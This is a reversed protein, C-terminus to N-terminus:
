NITETLVASTSSLYDANGNYVARIRHIGSVTFRCIVNAMGGGLNAAGLLTAGDWFVVMGTPVGAGPTVPLVTVTLTLPTGLAATTSSLTLQTRTSAQKATITLAASTTGVFSGDGGYVVTLSNLGVVLATTQISAQGNSLTASGLLTLGDYFSVTGTPMGAGPASANVTATLTVSQGYTPTSLSSSIVATTPARSVNVASSASTSGVFGGGGNYTATISHNGVALLSTTFSASNGSLSVTQLVTSGDMFTVSGAPTATSPAVVTVTATFSVAQGFVPKTATATLATTASAQTITLSVSSPSASPVFNGAPDSFSATFTQTGIGLTAVTLTAIGGAGVPATGLPTSGAYFTVTGTPFLSTQTNSVTATLVVPQGFVATTSTLNVTSTMTAAPRVMVPLVATVEVVQNHIFNAIFVDGAGDVAIGNPQALGTAITTSTGDSNVELVRNNGANAIFVDGQGDVAV